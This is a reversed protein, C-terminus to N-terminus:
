VAQGRVARGRRGAVFSVVADRVGEAVDLLASDLDNWRTVPNGDLPLAQLAAFPASSWLSPRLIVPIVRAEGALNRELARQMEVNYCYNSDLFDPSVLLLILHAAELQEDIRDKWDDGAAIVRDHWPEILGQRKLISLQRLLKEALPRDEHAYSIFIRIKSPTRRLSALV